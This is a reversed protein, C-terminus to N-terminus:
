PISLPQLPNVPAQALLCKSQATHRTRVPLECSVLALSLSLRGNYYSSSLDTFAPLNVGAAWEAYTQKAKMGGIGSQLM